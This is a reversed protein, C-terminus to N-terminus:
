YCYKGDNAKSHEQGKRMAGILTSIYVCRKTKGGNKSSLTLRGFPPKTNGKYDFEVQRVGNSLKRTTEQDIRINSNFNYWIAAAPVLTEPHVAWQTVGNEERFSAQWTIKDKTANSKAEQMARYVQDQATNLRQRDIFSLWSPAIITSLIGVIAVIIIIEILTYGATSPYPIKHNHKSHSTM